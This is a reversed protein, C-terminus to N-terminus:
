ESESLIRHDLNHQKYAVGHGLNESSLSGHQLMESCRTKQILVVRFSEASSLGGHPQTVDDFLDGITSRVQIKKFNTLIGSSYM